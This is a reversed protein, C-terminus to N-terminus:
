ADTNNDKEAICCVCVCVCESGRERVRERYIYIKGTQVNQNIFPFSFFSIINKYM